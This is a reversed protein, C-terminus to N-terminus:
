VTGKLKLDALTTSTWVLDVSIVHYHEGDNKRSAEALDRAEKLSSTQFHAGKILPRASLADKRPVVYYSPM